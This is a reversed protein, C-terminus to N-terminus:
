RSESMEAVRAVGIETDLSWSALCGQRYQDWGAAAIMVANDTCLSISPMVVEVGERAAREQMRQRLRSNAAVGGVVALGKSGYKKVARFSKEVLVDVIAEQYSAAIDALEPSPSRDKKQDRLYYLLATKLGSFSFDLGGRNLYPRPFNIANKSGTKALRDIVPGGPYQLGLMKAGKDFAEGAADDITQGILQYHGPSKSLFLHTHGGSVVLLISERSFDPQEIWTSALHGKLHNVAVLPIQLAYALAKGFNVGVLLAGALGPGNTVAIAQLEKLSVNTQGIAESVVTEITEIHRRSALEPVVGGYLSHVDVQSDLVSSLIQGDGTVLAAATEDCSTEIGLIPRTYIMSISKLAILRCGNKFYLSFVPATITICSLAHSSWYVCHGELDIIRLTM